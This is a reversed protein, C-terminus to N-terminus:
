SSKEFILFSPNRAEALAKTHFKTIIYNEHPQNKDREIIHLGAAKANEMMTEVYDQIDSAFILRGNPKLINKIIKLRDISGFRRKKQKQKPWPDPFLLYIIDISNNPVNDMIADVSDPWVGINLVNKKTALDLCNAIGNMYPEAGIFYDDKNLSAQHIFHESMGIGIELIVQSKIHAYKLPHDPDIIFKPLESSLIQKKQDSLRKGVRRAFSKLSSTQM